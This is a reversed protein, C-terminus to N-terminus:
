SSPNIKRLAERLHQHEGALHVYHATIRSGKEHGMLEALEVLGVSNLIARTGFGHRCGYLKVDEPLGIKRRLRRLNQAVSNRHYPRGLRNTFVYETDPQRRRIEVLLGTVEETLHIVRPKRVKQTKLTKHKALTITGRDLDLESWQAERVEVPRAGTSFCFLLIERLRNQNKGCANILRRFEEEAM